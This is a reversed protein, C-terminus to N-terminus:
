TSPAAFPSIPRTEVENSGPKVHFRHRLYAAVPNDFTLSGDFGKGSKIVAKADGATIAVAEHNQLIDAFAKADDPNLVVRVRRKDTKLFFDSVSEVSLLPHQYDISVEDSVNRVLEFVQFIPVGSADPRLEDARLLSPVLIVLLSFM